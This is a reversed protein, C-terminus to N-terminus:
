SRTANRMEMRLCWYIRQAQERVVERLSIYGRYYGIIVDVISQAAKITIQGQQEATLSEYWPQFEETLYPRLPDVIIPDHNPAYSGGKQVNVLPWGLDRGAKIWYRERESWNTENCTELIILEPKLGEDRLQVIWRAKHPNGVATEYCHSQFRAKPRLSKGIYRILGSRPDKLGYISIESM